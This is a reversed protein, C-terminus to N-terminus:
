DIEQFRLRRQFKESKIIKMIFTEDVDDDNKSKGMKRRPLMVMLIGLTSKGLKLCLDINISTILLILM